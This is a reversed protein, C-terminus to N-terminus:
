FYNIPNTDVKSLRFAFNTFNEKLKEQILEKTFVESEYHGIDAIMIKQDAEFYDHYKFDSTVFANANNNIAHNLLFSGSGGCIAVKKIKGFYNTYKITNTSMHQKVYSLFDNSVMEQTLEGIMGSGVEQNSNELSTLFYAVEEYPHNNKMANLVSSIQHNNVLLEVKTEEVFEKKGTNGITPNANENPKFSGTGDSEFSCQDYNGIKGAGAEFLANTLNEKNEKPVFVTLKSLANTKPHLVKLNTLKLKDAIKRNVGTYVNDLNTHIAYIAIENKIAKRICRDVWHKKGIRKKGSFILPHHAIILSSNNDIAEDIVQETVDLTILVGSVEDSSDGVILGSNDYNEQLSGPAWSDLFKVIDKIKM